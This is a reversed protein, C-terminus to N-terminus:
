LSKIAPGGILTNLDKRFCLLPTQGWRCSVTHKPLVVNKVRTQKYFAQLRDSSKAVGPILFQVLNDVVAMGERRPHARQSQTSYM